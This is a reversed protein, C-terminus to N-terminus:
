EEYEAMKERLSEPIPSPKFQFGEGERPICVTQVWGSARIKGETGVIQFRLRLSTRGLKEVSLQIEIKEGVRVVDHYQAHTEVAPFGIKQITQAYSAGLAEEFWIEMTEHFWNFFVPYYVVQAPDCEGFRVIRQTTFITTM